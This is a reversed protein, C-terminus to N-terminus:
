MRRAMWACTGESCGAGHSSAPAAAPAPAPAVAAVVSAAGPVHSVTCPDFRLRSISPSYRIQTPSPATRAHRGASPPSWNSSPSAASCRCAALKKLQYANATDSPASTPSTATTHTCSLLPHSAPKATQPATTSSPRRTQAAPM